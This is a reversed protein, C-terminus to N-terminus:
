SLNTPHPGSPEDHLTTLLGFGFAVLVRSAEVFSRTTATPTEAAQHYIMAARSLTLAPGVKGQSKILSQATENKRTEMQQVLQPFWPPPVHAAAVAASAAAAAAAGGGGGPMGLVSGRSVVSHPAEM